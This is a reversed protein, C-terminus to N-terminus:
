NFVYRVEAGYLDENKGTTTTDSNPFSPFNSGGKAYFAHSYILSAVFSEPVVQYNVAGILTTIAGPLNTFDILKGNGNVFSANAPDSFTQSV